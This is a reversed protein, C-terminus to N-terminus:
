CGMIRERARARHTHKILCCGDGASEDKVPRPLGLCCKGAEVRLGLM